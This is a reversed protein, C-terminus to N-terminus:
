IQPVLASDTAIGRKLHFSFHPKGRLSNWAAQLCRESYIGQELQAKIAPWTVNIRSADGVLLKYSGIHAVAYITTNM